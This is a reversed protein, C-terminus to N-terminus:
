KNHLELQTLRHEIDEIKERFEKHEDANSEKLENIIDKLTELMAQLKSLIGSLKFIVGGVTILFGVLTFIGVSIEWTM